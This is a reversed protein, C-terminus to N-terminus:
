MAERNMEHIFDIQPGTEPADFAAQDTRWIPHVTASPLNRLMMEIRPWAGNPGFTGLGVSAAAEAFVPDANAASRDFRALRTLLQRADAANWTSGRVAILDLAERCQASLSQWRTVCTDSTHPGATGIHRIPPTM